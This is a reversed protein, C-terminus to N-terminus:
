VKELFVGFWCKKSYLLTQKHVSPKQACRHKNTFLRAKRVLHAHVSLLCTSDKFAQRPPAVGAFNELRCLLQQGRCFKLMPILEEEGGQHCKHHHNCNTSFIKFDFWTFHGTFAHQENDNCASLDFTFARIRMLADIYVIVLPGAQSNIVMVIGMMAM